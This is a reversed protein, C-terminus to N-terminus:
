ELEPGLVGYSWPETLFKVQPVKPISGPKFKNALEISVKAIKEGASVELNSYSTM